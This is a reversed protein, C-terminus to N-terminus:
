GKVYDSMYIKVESERRRQIIWKGFQESLKQQFLMNFIKDEVADYTIPRRGLYKVLHYGYSSKIAGSLQGPQSMRFVQNAFYPDLEALVVWGLDGGKKASVPDESSAAAVAEFSEGKLVRQQLRRIEESVRKEEALSANRPKLLIHKLNVEFGLKDKNTRYWEMAEKRTPPTVGIALSMVQETILSKRIEERYDDYRMGETREVRAKFDETSSINMRDMIKKIHNDVKADSVIISQVEAEQVVLSEEILKDLLRSMEIRQRNQPINRKKQIRVFKNHIESEIIPSDNVVAIVRDYPEWPYLAGATCLLFLLVLVITTRTSNM